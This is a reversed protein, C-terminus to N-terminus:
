RRDPFELKAAAGEPGAVKGKSEALATEIIEREQNQLTNPLPGASEQRPPQVNQWGLKEILFTDGSSLIM